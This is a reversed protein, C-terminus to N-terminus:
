RYKFVQWGATLSVLAICIPGLLAVVTQICIQQVSSCRDETDYVNWSNWLFPMTYKKLRSIVMVDSVLMLLEVKSTRGAACTKAEIIPKSAAM